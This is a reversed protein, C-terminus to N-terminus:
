HGFLWQVLYYSLSYIIHTKMYVQFFNHWYHLKLLSINWSVSFLNSLNVNVACQVDNQSGPNQHTLFQSGQNLSWPLRWMPNLAVRHATDWDSCPALGSSSKLEAMHATHSHSLEWLETLHPGTCHASMGGIEMNAHLCGVLWICSFKNNGGIELCHSTAHLNCVGLAALLSNATSSNNLGDGILKEREVKGM